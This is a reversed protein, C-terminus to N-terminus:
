KVGIGQIPCIGVEQDAEYAKWKFISTKEYFLVNRKSAKYRVQLIVTDTLEQIEVLEALNGVMDSLRNYLTITSKHKVQSARARKAKISHHMDTALYCNM